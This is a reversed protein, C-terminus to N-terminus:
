RLLEGTVTSIKFGNDEITKINIHNSTIESETVIDTARSWIKKGLYDIAHVGTEEIVIVRKLEDLRKFQFFVSDLKLEWLRNANKISICDIQSEHGILLSASDELEEIQMPVGFSHDVIGISCSSVSILKYQNPSADNSEILVKPDSMRSFIEKLESKSDVTKIQSEM